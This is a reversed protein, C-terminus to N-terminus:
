RSRTPPRFLVEPFRERVREEVGALPVEHGLEQELSTVGYERIGCPTIRDFWSLDTSVNLAFGHSAIWGSSFKVGIACIKREGVWVGTYRPHRRGELGYDALVRIVVEELDRLYGHTDRVRLRLIPYAVLQGPGHFTADGGRDSWFVEAGLSRLYEEGMGLNSADRAARGVTYVPPHELLLLTDPIEDARRKRVLERQLEWAEAYPTLGPLRRIDLSARREELEM